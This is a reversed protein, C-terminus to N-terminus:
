NVLIYFNVWLYGSLLACFLFIKIYDMDDKEIGVWLHSLAIITFCLALILTIFIFATM